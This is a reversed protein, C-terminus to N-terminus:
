IKNIQSKQLTTVSIFKVLMQKIFFLRHYLTEVIRFM